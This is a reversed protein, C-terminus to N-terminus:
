NMKRSMEILKLLETLDQAAGQHWRVRFEEHAIDGEEHTRELCDALFLSFVRFNENSRLAALAQMVRKDPKSIM